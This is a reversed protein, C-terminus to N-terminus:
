FPPPEMTDLPPEVLDHLYREMAEIWGAVWPDTQAHLGPWKLWHDSTRRMAEPYDFSTLYGAARAAEWHRQVTRTSVGTDAALRAKSVCSWGEHDTYPLMAQLTIIGKKLRSHRLALEM